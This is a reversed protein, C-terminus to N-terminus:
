SSRHVYATRKLIDVIERAPPTSEAYKRCKTQLEAQHGVRL